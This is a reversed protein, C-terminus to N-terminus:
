QLVDWEEGMLKRLRSVGNHSADRVKSETLGLADATEHVSFDFLYRWVVVLRQRTTLRRLPRGARHRARIVPRRCRRCRM